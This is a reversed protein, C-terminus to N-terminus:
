PPSSGSVDKKKPEVAFIRGEEANHKTEFLKFGPLDFSKGKRITIAFDRKRARRTEGTGEDSAASEPANSNKGCEEGRKDVEKKEAPMSEL